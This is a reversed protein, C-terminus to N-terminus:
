QGYQQRPKKGAPKKAKPMTTNKKNEKSTKVEGPFSTGKKDYCVRIYRGGNLELMRVRGGSQVCKEFQAPMSNKMM